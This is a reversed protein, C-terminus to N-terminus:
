HPRLGNDCFLTAFSRNSNNHLLINWCHSWPELQQAVIVEPRAPQEGGLFFTVSLCVTQVWLTNKM